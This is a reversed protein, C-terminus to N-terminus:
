VLRSNSVHELFYKQKAINPLTSRAYSRCSVIRHRPEIWVPIRGDHVLELGLKKGAPLYLPLDDTRCAAYEICIRDPLNIRFVIRLLQM